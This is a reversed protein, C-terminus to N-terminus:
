QMEALFLGVRSQVQRSVEEASKEGAFYPSVQQLIMNYISSNQTDTKTTSNILEWVKDAQAQTIIGSGVAEEMRRHYLQSNCPFSPQSNQYDTTMYTRVFQWAADKNVCSSSIALDGRIHIANGTGHACPFGIFTFDETGLTNILNPYQEFSYISTQQLLAPASFDVETIDQPLAEPLLSIFQLYEIFEPSDFHCSFSEWDIYNDLDISLSERLIKERTMFPHFVSVGDPMSNLVANFKDFTIGPSEGLIASPGAVVVYEFNSITCALKGNYTCTDLVPKLFDSRSLEPDADLFPYLDELLGKESLQRTPLFGLDLIDPVDGAMVQTVFRDYDASSYDLIEIHCDSHSSNFKAVDAEIRQVNDTALTLVTNGTEPAPAEPSERGCGSFLMALLLFFVLFPSAKKM